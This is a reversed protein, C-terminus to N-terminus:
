RVEKIPMIGCEVLMKNIFDLPQTKVITFVPRSHSDYGMFTLIKM